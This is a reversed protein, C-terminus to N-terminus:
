ATLAGRCNLSRQRATCELSDFYILTFQDHKSANQHSASRRSPHAYQHLQGRRPRSQAGADLAVRGAGAEIRHASRSPGILAIANHM